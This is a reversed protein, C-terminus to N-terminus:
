PMAASGMADKKNFTNYKCWGIMDKWLIQYGDAM